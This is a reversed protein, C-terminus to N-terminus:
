NLSSSWSERELVWQGNVKRMRATGSTKGNSIADTGELTLTALDGQLFGQIIRVERARMMKMLGLMNAALPDDLKKAQEPVLYKKLEQPNGSQIAKEYERYAKGPEGGDLPLATGADLIGTNEEEKVTTDFEIDFTYQRGFSEDPENLFVKGAVRTDTYTTSDLGCVFNGSRQVVGLVNLGTVERQNELRVLIGHIKGAEALSDLTLTDFDGEDVPQDTLLVLIDKKTKDFPNEDSKALVSGISYTTGDLIFSGTATGAFLGTGIPLLLLMILVASRLM